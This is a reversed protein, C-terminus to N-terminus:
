WESRPDIDQLLLLAVVVNSEKYNYKNEHYTYLWILRQPINIQDGCFTSDFKTKYHWNLLELKSKTSTLKFHSIM